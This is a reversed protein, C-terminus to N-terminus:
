MGFVRPTPTYVDGSTPMQFMYDGYGPLLSDFGYRQVESRTGQQQVEQVRNLQQYGGSEFKPQQTFLSQNYSQQHLGVLGSTLGGYLDVQSSSFQPTTHQQLMTPQSFQPGPQQQMFLWPKPDEYCRSSFSSSWSNTLLNTSSKGGNIMTAHDIFGDNINSLNGLSPLAYRANPGMRTYNGSGAAVAQETRMCAPFGPPPKITPSFGPPTLNQVRSAITSPSLDNQQSSFGHENAFSFISQDNNQFNWSRADKPQLLGAVTQPYLSNDGDLDMSLINAIISSELAASEEDDDVLPTDHDVRRLHEVIEENSFSNSGRYIRDSKALTQFKNENYGDNLASNMYAGPQMNDEEDAYSKLDYWDANIQNHNETHSWSHDSYNKTTDASFSPIFSDKSKNDDFTPSNVLQSPNSSKFPVSDSSEIEVHKSDSSEMDVFNTVQKSSKIPLHDGSAVAAYGVDKMGDNFVPDEASANQNNFQEAVPPPLMSGSRRHVYKTGGIIKEVRNRTHVAAAEDKGFSDEEAGITHLYLCTPNSCPMNRLWAHCYKATGFSAKLPRGDLVYGHVSQICTVAEEEKSYTIYVSCTDNVFQQLAGGATRSLSIKTVKGYRGFYEKRQLLDEDAIDLPLGIIYAMKRQIVRVNSLDKRGEHPKSKGKLLKQKQSSSNGVVRQFNAELGVIRDKDYPTRCAPCRGETADKEAMDMIHHWCWVCVEYGCKCPNLQQDTWDMEEACLPCKKEEENSMIGRFFVDFHNIRRTISLVVAFLVSQFLFPLSSGLGSYPM